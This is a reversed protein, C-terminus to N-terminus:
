LFLGGCVVYLVAVLQVFFLCVCASAVLRTSRCNPVSVLPGLYLSRQNNNTVVFLDKRKWGSHFGGGPALM